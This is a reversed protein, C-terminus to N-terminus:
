NSDRATFATSACFTGGSFLPPEDRKRGRVLLLSALPYALLWLLNAAHFEASGLNRRFYRSRLSGTNPGASSRAAGTVGSSQGVLHVRHARGAIGASVGSRTARLYFDTEEYYMFYNEDLL